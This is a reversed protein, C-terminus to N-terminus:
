RAAGEPLLDFIGVDPPAWTRVPLSVGGIGRSVFLQMGGVDHLGHPYRRGLRGPLYPAGLPTAIQGGHTHGCLLLAVGRDAFHPAGDPSHCVGIRVTGDGCASFAADYDPCGSGPDDVGVFAIGAHPGRLAIADNDLLVAGARGLAAAIARTGSWHDHNGLVALKLSAPVAAIRRELARLKRETASLYLYDGGLILVDPRAQRALEFARELTEHATTPGIHLDSLFVLRLAAAGAPLIRLSHQAAAVRSSAPCFKWLRAPWGKYYALELTPEFLQSHFFIRARSDGGM